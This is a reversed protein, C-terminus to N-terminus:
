DVIRIDKVDMPHFLEQFKEARQRMVEVKGISGAEEGTPEGFGTSEMRDVFLSDVFLSYTAQDAMSMSKMFIGRGKASNAIQIGHPKDVQLRRCFDDFDVSRNWEQIIKRFDRRKGM